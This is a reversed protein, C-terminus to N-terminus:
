KLPFNIKSCFKILKAIMWAAHIKWFARCCHKMWMPSCENSKCPPNPRKLELIPAGHTYILELSILVTQSLIQEMKVCKSHTSMLNHYLLTKHYIQSSNSRLFKSDPLKPNHLSFLVMLMFIYFVHQTQSPSYSSNWPKKTNSSSSIYWPRRHM